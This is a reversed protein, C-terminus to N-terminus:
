GILNLGINPMYRHSEAHRFSDRCRTPLTQRHNCGILYFASDSLEHFEDQGSLGKSTCVTVDEGRERYPM